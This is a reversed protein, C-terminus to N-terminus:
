GWFQAKSVAKHGFKGNKGKAPCPAGAPRGKEIFPSLGKRKEDKTRGEGQRVKRTGHGHHPCLVFAHSIYEPYPYPILDASPLRVFSTQNKTGIKDNEDNEVGMDVLSASRKVEAWCVSSLSNDWFKAPHTVSVTCQTEWLETHFTVIASYAAPYPSM